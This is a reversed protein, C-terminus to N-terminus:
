GVLMAFVIFKNVDHHILIEDGVAQEIENGNLHSNPARKERWGHREYHEVADVGASKVDINADLYWASDFLDSDRIFKIRSSQSMTSVEDAIKKVLAAYDLKFNKDYIHMRLNRNTGSTIFDKSVKIQKSQSIARSELISNAQWSELQRIRFEQEKIWLDARLWSDLYVGMKDILGPMSALHRSSRTARDVVSFRSEVALDRNSINRSGEKQRYHFTVCPVAEGRKGFLALRANFEWDEYHHRLSGDFGGVEEFTARRILIASHTYNEELVNLSVDRPMWLHDSAGFTHAIGYVFDIENNSEIATRSKAFGTSDLLDDADIFQILGTKARSAGINRAISPGQNESLLVAVAGYQQCLSKVYAAEDSGSCDDVVIVEDEDRMCKKVSLICSELYEANKFHPIVFTVPVSVSRKDLQPEKKAILNHYSTCISSNHNVAIATYNNLSQEILKTGNVTAPKSKKVESNVFEIFNQIQKDADASTPDYSKVFEFEAGIEAMCGRSSVLTPKGFPLTEIFANPYNEFLSPFIFANVNPILENYLEEQPVYGKITVNEHLGSSMVLENIRELMSSGNPGTNTDRGCLLFNVNSNIIKSITTNDKSITDFFDFIGKRRELRGSYLITIRGDNKNIFKTADRGYIKNIWSKRIPNSDTKTRVITKAPSPNLMRFPHPIKVAKSKISIGSSRLEAEVRELMQDGGYLITDCHKFCYQEQEFRYFIDTNLASLPNRNDSFLMIEPSHLRIAINDCLFLGLRKKKITYYGDRGYDSFEILGFTDGSVFLTELYDAVKFSFYSHEDGVYNIEAGGYAKNSDILVVKLNPNDQQIRWDPDVVHRTLFLIRSRQKNSKSCLESLLLRIYTGIGGTVNSIPEFSTIVFDWHM